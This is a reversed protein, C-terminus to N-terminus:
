HRLARIAGVFDRLAYGFSGIAAVLIAVQPLLLPIGLAPTTQPRQMGWALMRYAWYSFFGAVVITVAAVMLRNLVQARGTLRQQLWDVTLHEGRRSALLSGAMYLQLAFLLVLEHLGITSLGLLYRAVVLFLMAAVVFVYALFAIAELAVAIWLGIGTEKSGSM